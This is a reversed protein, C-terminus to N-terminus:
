RKKADSSWFRMVDHLQNVQLDVVVQGLLPCMISVCLLDVEQNKGRTKSIIKAYHSHDEALASILPM